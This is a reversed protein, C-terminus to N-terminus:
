STIKQLYNVVGLNGHMMFVGLLDPNALRIRIIAETDPYALLFAQQTYWSLTPEPMDGSRVAECDAITLVCCQQEHYLMFHDMLKKKNTDAYSSLYDLIPAESRTRISSHLKPTHANM